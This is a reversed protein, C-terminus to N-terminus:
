IVDNISIYELRVTGKRIIDAKTSGRVYRM